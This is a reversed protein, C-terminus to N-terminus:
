TPRRPSRSRARRATPRSSSSCAARPRGPRIRKTLEAATAGAALLDRAVIMDVVRGELAAMIRLVPEGEAFARALAEAARPGDRREIANAVANVSPPRVDMVLAEGGTEAVLTGLGAADRDAVVLNAGARAFLRAIARGLGAAAGTVVCVKGALMGDVPAASTPTM